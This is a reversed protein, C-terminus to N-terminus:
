TEEWNLLREHNHILSTLDRYLLVNVDRNVAKQLGLFLFKRLNHRQIKIDKNTYLYVHSYYFFIKKEM